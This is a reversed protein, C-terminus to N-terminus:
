LVMCGRVLHQGWLHAPDFSWAVECWTRAGCTRQTLHGHMSAGPGPGVHASPRAASLTLLGEDRCRVCPLHPVQLHYLYFCLVDCGPVLLIHPVQLATCCPLVSLNCCQLTCDPVPIHPVSEKMLSIPSPHSSWQQQQQQQQAPSSTTPAPHHHVAPLPSSSRFYLLPPLVPSIQLLVPPLVYPLQPLLSELPLYQSRLAARQTRTLAHTRTRTNHTHAHTHAHTRAHTHMHTHTHTHTHMLAHTHTCTPAHTHAHAHMLAHTRTHM